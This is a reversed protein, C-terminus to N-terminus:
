FIITASNFGDSKKAHQGCWLIQPNSNFFDIVEEVKKTNVDLVIVNDPAGLLNEDEEKSLFKSKYVIDPNFTRSRSLDPHLSFYWEGTDLSLHSYSKNLAHKEWLRLAIKGM